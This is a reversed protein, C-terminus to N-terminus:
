SCGDVATLTSGDGSGFTRRSARRTPQPDGPAEAAQAAPREAPALRRIRQAGHVARAARAARQARPDDRTRPLTRRARRTPTLRAAGSSSSPTTARRRTTSRSSSAADRLRRGDCNKAGNRTASLHWISAQVMRNRPVRELARRHGNCTRGLTARRSAPPSGRSSSKLPPEAERAAPGVGSSGSPGVHRQTHDVHLRSGGQGPLGCPPLKPTASSSSMMSAITLSTSM